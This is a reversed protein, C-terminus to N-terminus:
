LFHDAGNLAKAAGAEQFKNLTKLTTSRQELLTPSAKPTTYVKSIPLSFCFDPCSAPVCPKKEKEEKEFKPQERFLLPINESQLEDELGRKRERRGEYMYICLDTFLFLSIGSERPLSIDVKSVLKRTENIPQTNKYRHDHLLFFSFRSYFLYIDIEQM